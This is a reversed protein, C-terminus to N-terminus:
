AGRATRAAETARRARAAAIFHWVGSLRQIERFRRPTMGLARMTGADGFGAEAFMGIYRGLTEIRAADADPMRPTADPM